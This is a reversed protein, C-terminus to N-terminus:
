SQPRHAAGDWKGFEKVWPHNPLSNDIDALFDDVQDLAIGMSLAHRRRLEPLDQRIAAWSWGDDDSEPRSLAGLITSAAAHSLGAEPTALLQLSYRWEGYLAERLASMGKPVHTARLLM